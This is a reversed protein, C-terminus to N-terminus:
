MGPLKAQIKEALKVLFDKVFSGVTAAVGAFVGLQAYHEPAGFYAALGGVVAVLAGLGFHKLFNSM